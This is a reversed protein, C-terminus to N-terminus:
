DLCICRKVVNDNLGGSQGRLEGNLEESRGPCLWVERKQGEVVFSAM